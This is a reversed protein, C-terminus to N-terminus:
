QPLPLKSDVTVIIGPWTTTEGSPYTAVIEGYLQGATDFDTSQAVYQCTGSPGDVITMSGTFKLTNMGPTQVKFVLTALTIDIASGASDTLTFNLTYGEDSQVVEIPTQTM